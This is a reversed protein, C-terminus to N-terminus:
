IWDIQRDALFTDSSFEEGESGSALSRPSTVVSGSKPKVVKARLMVAPLMINGTARSTSLCVDLRGQLLFRAKRNPHVATAPRINQCDRPQDMTRHERWPTSRRVLVVLCM